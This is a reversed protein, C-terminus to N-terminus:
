RDADPFIRKLAAVGEAFVEYARRVRPADAADGAQDLFIAGQNISAAADRAAQRERASLGEERRRLGAALQQAEAAPYHLSYWDEAEILLKLQADRKLIERVVEVATEPLEVRVEEHEHLRVGAQAAAREDATPERTLESFAFSFLKEEGALWIWANFDVPFQAVPPIAASLFEAGEAAYKLPYVHETFEETAADFTEIVLRGAFNRPDIPTKWDDYFFMRFETPTPLAGEVHHYLNEAMILHGGHVPSHDMHGMAQVPSLCTPCIGSGYYIRGFCPWGESMCVYTRVTEFQAQHALPAGCVECRGPGPYNKLTHSEM